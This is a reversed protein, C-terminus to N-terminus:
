TTRRPEEKSRSAADKKFTEHLRQFCQLYSSFKPNEIIGHYLSYYHEESVGFFDYAMSRSLFGEMVLLGLADYFNAVRVLVCLDERFKDNEEEITKALQSGLQNVRIRSEAIEKSDWRATVGLIISAMRANRASVLQRHSFYFGVGIVVPTLILAINTIIDWTNM